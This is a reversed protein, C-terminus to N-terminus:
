IMIYKLVKIRIINAIIISKKQYFSVYILEIMSILVFQHMLKFSDM